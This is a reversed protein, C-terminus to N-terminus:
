HSFSDDIPGALDHPLPSIEPGSSDPGIPPVGHPSPIDTTSNAAVTHGGQWPAPAAPPAFTGPYHKEITAKIVDDGADGRFKGYSGDPLKIYQFDAPTVAPTSMQPR